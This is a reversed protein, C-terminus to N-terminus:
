GAGLLLAQRDAVRASAGDGAIVQGHGGRAQCFPVAWWGAMVNAVVIVWVLLYGFQAGASINSAVNGPDVYAIAAVFAPGLLLSGSRARALRPRASAMVERM